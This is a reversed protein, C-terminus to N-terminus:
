VVLTLVCTAVLWKGIAVAWVEIGVGVRDKPISSFPWQAMRLMLPSVNRVFTRIWSCNPEADYVDDVSEVVLKALHGDWPSLYQDV